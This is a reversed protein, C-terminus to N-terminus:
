NENQIANNTLTWKPFQHNPNFIFNPDNLTKLFAILDSKDDEAIPTKLPSNGMNGNRPSYHDLVKRLSNFRGDHMYPYTYRLNRLSPVKFQMSDGDKRTQEYRGLDFLNSDIPLGNSAFEYTSFLPPPHCNACNEEFVKFGELEQDTFKEIGNQVRDYKSEVSILSLQFAELAELAKPITPETGFAERFLNLYLINTNLITQVHNLTTAMETASTLPALSQAQLNHAAGDHMFIEQWALNFLAPANRRGISDFAGHSLRHDTHAFSHYPSHCSACSVLHDASFQPDFFLVRGLEVTHSDLNSIRESKPAPFHDPINSNFPITSQFSWLTLLLFSLTIVSKM